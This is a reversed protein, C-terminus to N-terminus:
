EDEFIQRELEEFEKRKNELMLKAVTLNPPLDHDPEADVLNCLLELYLKHKEVIKEPYLEEVGMDSLDSELKEATEQYEKLKASLFMMDCYLDDDKCAATTNELSHVSDELHDLKKLLRAYSGHLKNHKLLLHREDRQQAKEEIIRRERAIRIATENFELMKEARLISAVKDLGEKIDNPLTKVELNLKSLISTIEKTLTINEQNTESIGKLLYRVEVADVNHCNSAESDNHM